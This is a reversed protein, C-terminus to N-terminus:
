PKVAFAASVTITYKVPGPEVGVAELEDNEQASGGALQMASYLVSDYAGYYSNEDEGPQSFSSLSKLEGLEVGAAKALRAAEAKAKSFAEALAKERDAETIPSVLAFVPEGPKPQNSGGGYYGFDTQMEELLEQQEPSLKQADAAGGLDAERINEQLPHVQLLLAEADGADLKWEATLAASVTVPTAVSARARSRGSRQMRQMLMMEVQQQEDTKRTSLRPADVEVSDEVAGLEVVKTRAAETRQKLGDLAEKLSGGRSIIDVKLRLIEPQRTLTISGSGSIVGPQPVQAVSAGAFGLVAALSLVLSKM